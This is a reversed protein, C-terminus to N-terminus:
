VPMFWGLGFSAANMCFSLALSGKLDLCRNSLHFLLLGEVLWILAEAILLACLYNRFFIGLAVWLAFQTFVNVFISALLLVGVPRNRIRCYVLVVIGEILITPILTRIV